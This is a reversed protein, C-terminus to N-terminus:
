FLFIIHWLAVLAQIFLIGWLSFKMAMWVKVWWLEAYEQQFILDAKEALTWEPQTFQIIKGSGNHIEANLLRNKGAFHETQAFHVAYVFQQVDFCRILDAVQLESVHNLQIKPYYNVSHKIRSAVCKM